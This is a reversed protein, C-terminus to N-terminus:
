VSSFSITETSLTFSFVHEHFIVDRSIYIKKTALNMVKYGKTGFLYGLFIHPTTRPEFKDKLVKPVTPYCLCGFFRLQRYNPKKNYLVEYPCKNKLHSSSLRNILHTSTLFM